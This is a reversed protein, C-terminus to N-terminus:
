FNLVLNEIALKPHVNQNIFDKTQLIDKVIQVLQRPKYNLSIRRLDMLCFANNILGERESKLLILDRFVTLWCDLIPMAKAQMALFSDKHGFLENIIQFREWIKGKQINVINQIQQRREELLSKDKGAALAIGPQGNALSALYHAEGREAGKELLFRYIVQQSVPLFKLIQCRSVITAPLAAIDTTLLIIITKGAPEELIKLLSNWAEISLTEAGEIIAFKYSALFSCLQLRHQMERVQNISINQQDEEKRLWYVDPHVNHIIQQCHQCQNCPIIKQGAEKPQEDNFCFVSKTFYEAVTRKGIGKPGYFLYAHAMEQNLLAAQLFNVINQNGVIPWQFVTLQSM